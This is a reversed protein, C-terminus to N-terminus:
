AELRELHDIVRAVYDDYGRAFELCAQRDPSRHVVYVFMHTSAQNVLPEVRIETWSEGSPAQDASVLRFGFAAVPGGLFPALGQLASIPRSVRKFTDLPSTARPVVSHAVVEHFRAQDKSRFALDDQLLQEVQEFEDAALDPAVAEVVLVKRDSDVRLSVDGKRAVLGSVAYLTGLPPQRTAAEGELVYGHQPLARLFLGADFPFSVSAYAVGVSLRQYRLGPVQRADRRRTM